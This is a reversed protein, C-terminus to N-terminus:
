NKYVRLLKVGHPPIDYMFQDNRLSEARHTWCDITRNAALGVSKLSVTIKANKGAMNFIGIVHSGDELEKMWVQYTDTRIKQRAQKGLPDQDIALVEDNTLLNLTFPDLKSIDCGILLPAALLCWLSVHAYQEDPTLRSPHLNEGWGVQGVIMMDPDNWHGPGAYPYLANQRFGIRSMSEWSDEIDETTRWSQGDVQRGWKWVDGMGYQCLSYVIDRGQTRLAKQMLSYPKIYTALSTDRGAIRDYSCWDYKLYDIGWASYTDADKKENQWSGTFGGCTLPGPSSYIGFKLGQSHLWDGLAKMDPFKDNPVITSDGARTPSQWGDDINIYSWGHDALGKDLLAQASSRVKVDSVSTGWCNWSNWGMPPTLSLESGVKISFIQHAQGAKNSVTIHVTYNGRVGSTGTLVGTTADLKMSAPLGAATYHMPKEGSAAVRFLVPMGPRVGFVKPSNIHPASSPAPTLIYPVDYSGSLTLGTGTEKFSYLCVVGPSADATILIEKEGYPELIIDESHATVAQKGPLMEGVSYSYEGRIITNFLNKIRLPLITQKASEYRISDTVIAMALGDTKELMDLYPHGMFIGGTGGGDYDRVAIINEKDWRIADDAIAVHYERVAPWKSVYGGPDGPFSGIQGIKKGNLFTEDVDNVHALFIRLSDKWKGGARLSSPIVVHMRYWAYGHYEPYGQAQWVEGTHITKWKSDDFAPDKWAPDDGTIFRADALRIADSHQASCIIASYFLIGTLLARSIM